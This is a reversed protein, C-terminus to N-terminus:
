STRASWGAPAGGRCRTRKPCVASPSSASPRAARRPEARPRRRRARRVGRRGGGVADHRYPWRPSAELEAENLVVGSPNDADGVAGRSHAADDRSELAALDPRCGSAAPAPVRVMRAGSVELTAPYTPYSPEFTIVEDGPGALCLSAAFLANQAGALFVVSDAQVAQGRASRHVHAIVRAATARGAVAM